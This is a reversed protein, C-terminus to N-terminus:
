VICSYMSDVHTLIISISSIIHSFYNRGPKKMTMNCMKEERKLSYDTPFLRCACGLNLSANHKREKLISYRCFKNDEEHSIQRNEMM